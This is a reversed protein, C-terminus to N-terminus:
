SNDGQDAESERLVYSGGCETCLAPLTQGMDTEGCFGWWQGKALLKGCGKSRDVPEAPASQNNWVRRLKTYGDIDTLAVCFRCRNCQISCMLAEGFEVGDGKNCVPCKGLEESM